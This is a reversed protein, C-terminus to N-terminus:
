NEHISLILHSHGTDDGPAEPTAVDNTIHGDSRTFTTVQNRLGLLEEQTHIRGDM